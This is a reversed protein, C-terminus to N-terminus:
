FCHRWVKELEALFREYDEIAGMQGESERYEKLTWYPPSTLVLQVTEPGVSMQRADELFLKHHTPIARLNAEIAAILVPDKAIRPLAKQPDALKRVEAPVFNSIDLPSVVSAMAHM